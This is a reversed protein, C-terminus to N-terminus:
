LFFRSLFTDLVSIYMSSKLASINYNTGGYWLCTKLDGENGVIMDAVFSM